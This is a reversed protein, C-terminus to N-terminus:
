IKRVYSLIKKKQFEYLKGNIYAITIHYEKGTVKFKLVCANGMFCIDFEKEFAIKMKTIENSTQLLEELNIKKVLECHYKVKEKFEPFQKWRSKDIYFRGTEIAETIKELYKYLECNPSLYRSKRKALEENTENVFAIEYETINSKIETSQEM